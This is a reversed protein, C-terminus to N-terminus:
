SILGLRYVLPSLCFSFQRLLSDQGAFKVVAHNKRTKNFYHVSRSTLKVASGLLASRPSILSSGDLHKLSGSPANM